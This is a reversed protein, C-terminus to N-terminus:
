LTSCLDQKSIAKFKHSYGGLAKCQYDSPEAGAIMMDTNGLISASMLVNAGTISNCQDIRTQIRKPTM